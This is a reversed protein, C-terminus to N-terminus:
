PRGGKAPPPGSHVRQVGARAGMAWAAPARVEKEMARIDEGTYMHEAMALMQRASPACVQLPRSPLRSGDVAAACACMCSSGSGAVCGVCMITRLVTTTTPARTPPGRSALLCALATLLWGPPRPARRLGSGLSRKGLRGNAEWAARIRAQSRAMRRLRWGGSVEEYKSAVWLCALGLLQFSGCTVPKACLFRCCCCPPAACVVCARVCRM